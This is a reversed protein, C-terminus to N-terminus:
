RHSAPSPTGDGPMAELTAATSRALEEDGNCRAARLLVTLAHPSGREIAALARAQRLEERHHGAECEVMVRFAAARSQEAPTRALTSAQRASALARRLAQKRDASMLGRRWAEDDTDGADPLAAVNAEMAQKAAVKAQARWFRAQHLSEEFPTKVRLPPLSPVVLAQPPAPRQPIPLALIVLVPVAGAIAWMMVNRM